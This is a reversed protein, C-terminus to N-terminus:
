SSTQVFFISVILSHPKFTHESMKYHSCPSVLLRCSCSPLACRRRSSSGGMPVVGRVQSVLHLPKRPWWLGCGERNSMGMGRESLIRYLPDTKAVAVRWKAGGDRGREFTLRLTKQGGNSVVM